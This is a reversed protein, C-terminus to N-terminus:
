FVVGFDIRIAPLVAAFRLGVQDANPNLFGNAGVAFGLSWQGSWLWRWGATALLIPHLITEKAVGTDATLSYIGSGLQFWPGYFPATPYLHLAGVVAVGRLSGSSVPYDVYLSQVGFHLAKWVSFQVEVLPFVYNFGVQLSVPGKAPPVESFAGQDDSFSLLPYVIIIFLTQLVFRRM